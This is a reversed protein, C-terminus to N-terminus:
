PIMGPAMADGILVFAAWHYPHAYREDELLTRRARQLSRAAGEGELLSEYLADMLVATSEDSVPWLSAVVGHTGSALFSRALGVVGEGRRVRGTATECASLVVLAAAPQLEEIEPSYLLGDNTADATLAVCSRDPEAPDVIGHTALHLILPQREEMEARLATESAAEGLLLHSEEPDVRGGVRRLEDESYPLPALDMDELTDFDPNGLALLRSRSPREELAALRLWV